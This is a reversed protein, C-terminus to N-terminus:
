VTPLLLTPQTATLLLSLSLPCSPVTLYKVLSYTYSSAVATRVRSNVLEPSRQKSFIVKGNM